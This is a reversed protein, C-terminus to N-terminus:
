YVRYQLIVLYIYREIGLVPIESAVAVEQSRRGGRIWLALRFQRCSM